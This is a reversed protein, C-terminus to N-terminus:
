IFDFLQILKLMTKIVFMISYCFGINLKCSKLDKKPIANDCKKKIIFPEDDSSTGAFVNM